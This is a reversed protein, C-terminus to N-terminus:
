MQEEYKQTSTWVTTEVEDIQYKKYPNNGITLVRRRAIVAWDCGGSQWGLWRSPLEKAANASSSSTM